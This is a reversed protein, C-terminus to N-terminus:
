KSVGKSEEIIDMAIQYANKNNINKKYEEFSSYGRKKALEDINNVGDLLHFLELNEGYIGKESIKKLRDKYLSILQGENTNQFEAIENNANKGMDNITAVLTYERLDEPLQLISDVISPLDYFMNGSSDRKTNQSLISSKSDSNISGILISTEQMNGNNPLVKPLDKITIIGSTILATVIIPLVVKKIVNPEKIIKLVDEKSSLEYANDINLKDANIENLISLEKFREFEDM